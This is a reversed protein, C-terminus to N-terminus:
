VTENEELFNWVETMTRNYEEEYRILPVGNQHEALDRMIRLSEDFLSSVDNINLAEEIGKLIETAIKNNDWKNYKATELM